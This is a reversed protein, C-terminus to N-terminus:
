STAATSNRGCMDYQVPQATDCLFAGAVCPSRVRGEKYGASREQWEPSLAMGETLADDLVWLNRREAKGKM